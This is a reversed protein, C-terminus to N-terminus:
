VENGWCDWGEVQERAFLEIRPLDGFLKVIRSRVEDPKKSHEMKQAIVCSSVCNSVPKMKGKIGLLCVECNSKSYYGVGFFPVKNHKNTKIWSFGLTKYKFGWKEFLKIQEDLYPFTTWLLLACNEASIKDIPLAIIEDISM